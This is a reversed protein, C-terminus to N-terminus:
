QLKSALMKGIPEVEQAAEDAVVFGILKGDATALVPAGHWDRTIPTTPPLQWRGDKSTFQDAVMALPDSTFAVVLSDEPFKPSRIDAAPWTTDTVPKELAYAAM